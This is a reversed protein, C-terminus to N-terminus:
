SRAKKRTRRFLSRCRVEASGSPECGREVIAENLNAVMAMPPTMMSMAPVTMPVMPTPMVVATMVTVPVVPVMVVIPVVPVAEAVNPILATKVVMLVEVEVAVHLTRAGNLRGPM